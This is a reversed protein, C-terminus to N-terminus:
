WFRNLAILFRRLENFDVLHLYELSNILEDQGKLFLLWHEAHFEVQLSGLCDVSDLIIMGNLLKGILVAALSEKDILTVDRVLIGLKICDNQNAGRQEIKIAETLLVVVGQDWVGHGAACLEELFWSLTFGDDLGGM